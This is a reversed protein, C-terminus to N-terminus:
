SISQRSEPSAKCNARAKLTCFRLIRKLIKLHLCVGLKPTPFHLHSSTIFINHLLHSTSYNKYLHLFDQRPPLHFFGKSQTFTRRASAEPFHFSLSPNKSFHHKPPSDTWRSLVLGKSSRLRGCGASHTDLDTQMVHAFISLFAKYVTCWWHHRTLLALTPAIQQSRSAQLKVKLFAWPIGLCCTHAVFRLFAVFSLYHLKPDSQKLLRWFMVNLAEGTRTRGDRCQDHRDYRDYRLAHPVMAARMGPGNRCCNSLLFSFTGCTGWPVTFIENQKQLLQCKRFQSLVGTPKGDYQRWM